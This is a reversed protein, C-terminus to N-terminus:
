TMWIARSEKIEDGFTEGDSFNAVEKRKDKSVAACSVHAKKELTEDLSNYDYGIRFFGLEFTEFTNLSIIISNEDKWDICGHKPLFVRFKDDTAKETSYTRFFERRLKEPDKLISLLEEDSRKGVPSIIPVTKGIKTEFREKLINNDSLESYWKTLLAQSYQIVRKENNALEGRDLAEMGVTFVISDITLEKSLHFQSYLLRTMSRCGALKEIFWPEFSSNKQGVTIILKKWVKLSYPDFLIDNTFRGSISVVWKPVLDKINLTIGM